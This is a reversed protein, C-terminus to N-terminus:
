ITEFSVEKPSLPGTTGPDLAVKIETPKFDPPPVLSVTYTGAEKEIVVNTQNSSKGDILVRRAERFNVKLYEM